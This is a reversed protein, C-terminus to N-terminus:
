PGGGVGSRSKIKLIWTGDKYDRKDAEVQNKQDATMESGPCDTPLSTGEVGKCVTCEGSQINHAM